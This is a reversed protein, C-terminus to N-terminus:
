EGCWGRDSNIDGEEEAEKDKEEEDEEDEEANGDVEAILCMSFYLFGM